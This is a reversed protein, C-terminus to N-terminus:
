CCGSRVIPQKSNAPRKMSRRSKMSGAQPWTNLEKQAEAYEPLHSLIYETDVYAYKQSLASFSPIILLIPLLQRLLRM